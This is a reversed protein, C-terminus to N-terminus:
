AHRGFHEVDERALTDIDHHDAGRLDFDGADDIFFIEFEGHAGEMRCEVKVLSLGSVPQGLSVRCADKANYGM